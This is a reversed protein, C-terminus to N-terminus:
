SRRGPEADRLKEAAEPLRDLVALLDPIEDDLCALADHRVRLARWGSRRAGDIDHARSDGVHLCQAPAVGLFSEAARFIKEEPKEAGVESSIVVANFLSRLGTESLVSHLRGDWNSLVGLTYGRSRLTELVREADPFVRWRSGRAFTEWLEACFRPADDPMPGVSSVTAVIVETWFEREAKESSFRKRTKSARSFALPFARDLDAAAYDRGHRLAIERYVAGVSPHPRLLTGAADFTIASIGALDRANKAIM